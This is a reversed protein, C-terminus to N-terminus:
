NKTIREYIDSRKFLDWMLISSDCINNQIEKNDEFNSLTVNPIFCHNLSEENGLFRHNKIYNKDNIIEQRKKKIKEFM